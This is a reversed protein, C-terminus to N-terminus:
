VGCISKTGAHSISHNWCSGNGLPYLGTYLEHRCPVCMAMAVYARRFLVGEEALRDIHTTKVNKGGYCSLEYYTTDDTIILLFNPKRNAPPKQGRAGWGWLSVGLLATGKLFDRRNM